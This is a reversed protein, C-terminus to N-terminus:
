KRVVAVNLLKSSLKLGQAEAAKPSIEFRVKSGTILFNIVGGMECFDPFESVSLVHSGKLGQLTQGMRRKETPSIYLIHAGRAEDVSTFRRTRIKHKGVTKGAVVKELDENFPDEGLIGIVLDSDEPLKAGPWEAFKAFNFLFAAKIEWEGASKASQANALLLCPLLVAVVRCWSVWRFTVNGVM